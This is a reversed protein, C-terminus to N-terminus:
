NNELIKKMNKNKSLSIYKNYLDLIEKKYLAIVDIYINGNIYNINGIISNSHILIIDLDFISNSQCNSLGLKGNSIVIKIYSDKIVREIEDINVVRKIFNQTKINYIIDNVIEDMEKINFQRKPIIKSRVKNDIIEIIIEEKIKKNCFEVRKLLIKENNFIIFYSYQENFFQHKFKDVEINKM